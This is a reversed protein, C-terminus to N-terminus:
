THEEAFDYAAHPVFIVDALVDLGLRQREGAYVEAVVRVDTAGVHIEVFYLAESCIVGMLFCLTYIEGLKSAIAGLSAIDGCPDSCMTTNLSRM